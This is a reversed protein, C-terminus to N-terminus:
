IEYIIFSECEVIDSLMVMMVLMELEVPVMKVM